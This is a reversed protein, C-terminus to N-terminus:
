FVSMPKKFSTDFKIQLEHKDQFNETIFYNHYNAVWLYKQLIRYEKSFENLKVEVVEKHRKLIATTKEEDEGIAAELYNVFWEGDSDILLDRNQPSNEVVYYNM